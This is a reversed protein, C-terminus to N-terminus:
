MSFLSSAWKINRFVNTIISLIYIKLSFTAKKLAFSSNLFGQLDRVSHLYTKSHRFGSMDFKSMFGQLVFNEAWGMTSLNGESLKPCQPIISWCSSPSAGQHSKHHKLDKHWIITCNMCCKSSTLSGICQRAHDYIIYSVKVRRNLEEFTSTCKQEGPSSINPSIYSSQTPWEPYWLEIWKFHAGAKPPQLVPCAWFGNPLSNPSNYPTFHTSQVSFPKFCWNQRIFGVFALILFAFKHTHLM